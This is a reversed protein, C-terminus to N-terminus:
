ICDYDDPDFTRCPCPCALKAVPALGAQLDLVGSDETDAVAEYYDKLATGDRLMQLRREWENMVTAIQQPVEDTTGRSINRGAWAKVVAGYEATDNLWRLEYTSTYGLVIDTFERWAVAMDANAEELDDEISAAIQNLGTTSERSYPPQLEYTELNRAGGCKEEMGARTGFDTANGSATTTSFSNGM